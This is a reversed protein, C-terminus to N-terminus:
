ALSWFSDPQGVLELLSLSLETRCKVLFLSFADLVADETM